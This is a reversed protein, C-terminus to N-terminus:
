NRKATEEHEHRAYPPLLSSSYYLQNRNMGGGQSAQTQKTFSGDAIADGALKTM